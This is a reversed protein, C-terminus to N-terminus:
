LHTSSFAKYFACYISVCFLSGFFRTLRGYYPLYVKLFLLERAFGFLVCAKDTPIFYQVCMCVNQSGENYTNHCSLYLVTDLLIKGDINLKGRSIWM